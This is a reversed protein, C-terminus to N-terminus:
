QDQWFGCRDKVNADRFTSAVCMQGWQAEQMVAAVCVTEYRGPLPVVGNGCISSM